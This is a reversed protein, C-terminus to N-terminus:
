CAFCLNHFATQGGQVEPIIHDVVMPKGTNAETPRCYACRHDDADVLQQRLEAPLYTSM